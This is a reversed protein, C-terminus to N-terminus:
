VEVRGGGALNFRKWVSVGNDEYIDIYDGDPVVKNYTMKKLIEAEVSEWVANTITTTNVLGDVNVNVGGNWISTRIITGQEDVLLGSGGVIVTGATITNSLVVMGASLGIGIEESASSLNNITLLGSYNPLSVSQGSGGMDIEPPSDQDVTFCNEIVAKENGGLLLNGYLGCHHIHGNVYNISGVSCDVLHTGGDLVGTVNANKITIGECLASTDITIITKVHSRGIITFDSIDTGSDLTMSERIFLTKFGKNNAIIIADSLNDVPYEQNGIPYATGSVGNNVDISIGNGYSSYQIADLDSQTASSSATVLVQTFATPYIAGNVNTAVINGGSVTCQVYSPGSRAEFALQWDDLLTLTLGVVVGGGLPEKGACSAIVPVDMSTLENEWERISNLLNQITIETDPTLVTIIKNVKDFSLAM